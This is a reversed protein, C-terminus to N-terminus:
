YYFQDDPHAQQAKALEALLSAQHDVSAKGIVFQLTM